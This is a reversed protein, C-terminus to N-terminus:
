QESGMLELCDCLARITEFIDENTVIQKEEGSLIRNMEAMMRYKMILSNLSYMIEMQIIQKAEAKGELPINLRNLTLNFVDEMKKEKKEKDNM